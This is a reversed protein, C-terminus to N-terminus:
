TNFLDQQAIWSNAESPYGLFKVLYETQGNRKRTSDIREIPWIGDSKDVLQIESTYFSGKIEEGKYDKLGYTVPYTTKVKSVEFIEYSFTMEYGKQFIGKKRTIRVSDGVKLLAKTHKKEKVVRPFLNQRVERENALSVNNPAFLTSSHKTKNYGDILDQLIDIWRHSGRATFYRFMRTKLTRCFREIIAAKQESYVSYHKIKHKKLLKLFAANYFESGQDFQIKEPTHLRFFPKMVGVITNASKNKMKFGWAKKSFTDIIVIIWKFGDNDNQLSSLDVLDAQYLYKIRKTYVRRYLTPKRTPKHLTYSDISKLKTNVARRSVRQNDQQLARFFREQGAFSASFKPNEYLQKLDM